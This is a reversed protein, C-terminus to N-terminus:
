KNEPAWVAEGAMVFRGQVGVRELLVVVEEVV